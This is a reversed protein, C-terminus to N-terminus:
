GSYREGAWEITTQHNFLHAIRGADEVRGLRQFSRSLNLVEAAALRDGSLVRCADLMAAENRHHEPDLAACHPFLPLAIHQLDRAFVQGPGDGCADEVKRRVLVPQRPNRTREAAEITYVWSHLCISPEAGPRPTFSRDFHAARLAVEAWIPQSVAARQPEARARGDRQPYHVQVEPDRGPARVFAILILDGGYGDVYFVRRVEEGAAAHEEISPVGYLARMRRQQDDACRDVGRDDSCNPNIPQQASGASAVLAWASFLLAASTKRFM